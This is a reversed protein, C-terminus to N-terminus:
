DYQKKVWYTNKYWRRLVSLGKIVNLDAEKDLSPDKKSVWKDHKFPILQAIPTGQPIVGEFNQKLFFPINGEKGMAYPGDIIGSLTTFPLDYRNLPHTLLVSYGTPVKFTVPLHWIFHTPYHGAPIPINANSSSDRVEVLNGGLPWTITKSGNPETGVVFDYSTTILYGSTLADTFPSCSKVTKTFERAYKPPYDGLHPSMEKFWTPVLNKSPSFDAFENINFSFFKIPLKKGFRM